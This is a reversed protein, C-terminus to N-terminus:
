ILHCGIIGQDTRLIPINEIIPYAILSNTSYLYGNRQELPTLSIPCALVNALSIIKERSPPTIIYAYTPNLKNSSNSIKILADIKGGLNEIHSPIDRIYQLKDMRKKGAVTNHEYCPEFLIVKRKTVRFIEKLLEEERGHNPELAHSTWVIDVTKSLIPIVGIDGVFANIKLQLEKRINKNLYKNGLYIRSLSIDFCYCDSELPYVKNAVKCLTTMEGTGCDLIKDQKLLFDSLIEAIESTYMDFQLANENAYKIYSGAQLDYAIEINKITNHSVNQIDRLHTTINEGNEYLEKIKNLELYKM